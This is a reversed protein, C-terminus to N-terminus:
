ELHTGFRVFIIMNETLLKKGTLSSYFKEKSSLKKRFKEFDTMYEFSYFGKKTVLDLINNDFGQSLCKLDDKNLYKVLSDLSYSLFQFSDIFSLKNTITFSM